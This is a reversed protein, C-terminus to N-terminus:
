VTIATVATLYEMFGYGYGLSPGDDGSYDKTMERLTKKSVVKGKSLANMWLTMDECGSAIDTAGCLLLAM